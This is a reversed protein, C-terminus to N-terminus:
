VAGTSVLAETQGSVSRGPVGVVTSHGPFSRTVVAGAGVIVRDGLTVGPLIVANAGIWCEKGIRIPEAPEWKSLDRKSHNASILKVGPGFRTDDGIEVGNAGQVYCGGSLAFSHWVDRGLTVSGIVRSTFHVMFRHEGNIGLVRQCFVNVLWLGLPLPRTLMNLVRQFRRWPWLVTWVVPRM